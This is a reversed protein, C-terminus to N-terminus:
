HLDSIKQVTKLLIQKILIGTAVFVACIHGQGGSVLLALYDLFELDWMETNLGCNLLASFRDTKQECCWILFKRAVHCELSDMENQQDLDM